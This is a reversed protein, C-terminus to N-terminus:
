LCIRMPVSWRMMASAPKVTSCNTSSRRRQNATVNTGLLITARRDILKVEDYQFTIQGRLPESGAVKAGDHQRVPLALAVLDLEGREGAITATTVRSADSTRGTAARSITWARV